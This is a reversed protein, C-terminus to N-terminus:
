TTLDRNWREMPNGSRIRTMLSADGAREFVSAVWFLTQAYRALAAQDDRIDLPVTTWHPFAERIAEANTNILQALARYDEAGVAAILAARLDAPPPVPRRTFWDFAGVPRDYPM